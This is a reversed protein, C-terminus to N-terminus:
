RPDPCSPKLMWGAWPQIFIPLGGTPSAPPIIPGTVAQHNDVCIRQSATNALEPRADIASWAKWTDGFTNGTVSWDHPDHTGNDWGACEGWPTCWSFFLHATNGNNTFTNGQILGNSAYGGIFIAESHPNDCQYNRFMNNTITWGSSPDKTRGAWIFNQCARNIAGDFVNHDLVINDAGQAVFSGATTGTVTVRNATAPLNIAGQVTSNRLTFNSAGITVSGTVTVNEVVAGRNVLAQFQAPTLTGSPPPLIPPPYSGTALLTNARVQYCGPVSDCAARAFRVQSRGGDQTNSVRVGNVWFTYSNAGAPPTWTLTVTSATESLKGLPLTDAAASAAFTLLLLLGCFAGALRM